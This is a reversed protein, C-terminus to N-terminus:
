SYVMQSMEWYFEIIQSLYKKVDPPLTGGKKKFFSKMRTEGAYYAVIGRTLGNRDILFSLYRSGIHINIIPDSLIEHLFSESLDVKKGDKELLFSSILVERATSPLIQMLGVAGAPSVVKPDWTKASEHNILACLLYIDLNSDRMAILYIERAIRYQLDEPMQTNTNKIFALITKIGKEVDDDRPWSLEEHFLLCFVVGIVLAFVRIKWAEKM